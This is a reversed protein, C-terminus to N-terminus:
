ARAQRIRRTFWRSARTPFLRTLADIRNADKGAVVRDRNKRIADVITAALDEPPTTLLRAEFLATSRQAEVADAARAIRTNRAIATKVGGPHVTLVHVNTGALEGRLSETFGRVAFKSAAYAAQGPPAWLGFVSSVNVICGEPQELLAPLFAKTGYVVGWFNIKMLWEIEDNAVEAITGYLSVGANNVVLSVRGYQLLVDHAFANVAVEDAVDVPHATATGGAATVRQVTEALGAEDRDALALTMGERALALALARGIGSAAGTIAAVGDRLGTL